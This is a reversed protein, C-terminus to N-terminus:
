LLQRSDIHEFAFNGTKRALRVMQSTGGTATEAEDGDWLALLTVRAAGWSQALNVVWRNGRDWRDLKRPRLWPPLEASDSLQFANAERAKVVALFRNRWGDLQPFAERAVVDKPMPLCLRAPIGMELCLEHVLIDAGPAASALVVLEEDDRMLVRLRAEILVRARAEAAAPFRPPTTTPGDITHGSFVVLHVPKADREKPGDLADIVAQAVPARIGLQAFLVLQGRTADREFHRDRPIAQQYAAVVFGPDAALSEEPETLFLLDAKSIEAWIPDDKGPFDLAHDISAAVIHGLVPLEQELDERLRRARLADRGFMNRWAAESSLSLLVHGAQLAAIGPYFGNLDVRFAGLYAEYSQLLKNDIARARREDVSELKELGLRWLTKLNRGQLALAEAQHKPSLGKVGLVREIAQNSAELLAPRLNVRYLRELINALSLNADLDLPYVARVAEWTERAGEYDKLSWQALGIRKLGVWQFREGRVEEALLRLWGKDSSARARDVEEVFDLPVVVVASPDAQALTPMMLFIPSDTDRNGALGTTIADVLADVADGPSGVPYKLYRDTSLDFPTTDASPDGKILVTHKKRLAHRVGLEYFVNANHVTIDCIVVDAELILSFMDARINGADVVVGTTGGALGCRAMAPTILQADVLDFDVPTGASDKKLGFGRIVFARM